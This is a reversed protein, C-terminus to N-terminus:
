ININLVQAYSIMVRDIDVNLDNYMYMLRKYMYKYIVTNTRVRYVYM